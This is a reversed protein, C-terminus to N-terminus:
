MLAQENSPIDEPQVPLSEHAYSGVELDAGSQRAYMKADVDRVVPYKLPNDLAEFEPVPGLDVMQHVAPVLPIVAGAMEAVQRSWVGGCVVVTDASIYGRTNRFAGTIRDNEKTLGTVETNAFSQLAGLDQAKERYITGAHLPDVVDVDHTYFGGLIKTEDIYPVMEKVGAPDMLRANIDFSKALSVRRHLEHMREPTRALEIGGTRTFTGLEDFERISDISWATTQRSHDVAFTFSSAHGTSGGPNPLPGKDVQVIDRWGLRALHWVLANGVIAAGVVV